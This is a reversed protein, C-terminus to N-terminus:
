WDLIPRVVAQTLLKRIPNRSTLLPEGAESAASVGGAIAHDISAV